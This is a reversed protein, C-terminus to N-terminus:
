PGTAEPPDGGPDTPVVHTLHTTFRRHDIAWTGERRTWRDDYQGRILHVTRRDARQSAATVYATSTAADGDVEILLNTVQHSSRPLLMEHAGIGFDVFDRGTGQFMGVYDATGDPHWVSYGLERDKTDFAVCYRHLVETIAQKDLLERLEAATPLEDDAV